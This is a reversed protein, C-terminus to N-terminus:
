SRGLYDFNTIDGKLINLFDTMIRQNPKSVTKVYHRGQDLHGQSSVTNWLNDKFERGEKQIRSNCANTMVRLVTM